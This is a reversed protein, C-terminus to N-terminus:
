RRLPSTLDTVPQGGRLWERVAPPPPRDAYRAPSDAAPDIAPDAQPAPKPTVRVAIREEVAQEIFGLERVPVQVIREQPVRRATSIPQRSTQLRAEWHTVARTEYTLYPEV